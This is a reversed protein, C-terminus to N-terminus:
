FDGFTLQVGFKDPSSPCSGGNKSALLNFGASFGLLVNPNGLRHEVNLSACGSSSAKAKITTDIAAAYEVGACLQRQKSACKEDPNYSFNFAVTTDKNVPHYASFNHSRLKNDSKLALVIDAHDYQVGVGYCGITAAVPDAGVYGGASLGNHGVVASACVGLKKKHTVGVSGAFGERRYSTSVSGDLNALCQSVSCASTDCAKKDGCAKKDAGCAPAQTGCGSGTSDCGAKLKLVLNPALEEVELTGNLKGCTSGEIELKHKKVKSSECTVKAEGYVGCCAGVNGKTEITLACDKNKKNRHKVILSNNFNYKKKFLDSAKKGIDCFQPPIYSAM